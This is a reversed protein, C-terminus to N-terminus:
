RMTPRSAKRDTEGVEARQTSPPPRRAHGAKGYNVSLSSETGFFQRSGQGRSRGQMRVQVEKILMFFNSVGAESRQRGSTPATEARCTGDNGTWRQCLSLDLIIENGFLLTEARGCDRQVQQRDTQLSPYTCHSTVVNYLQRKPDRQRSLWRRLLAVPLYWFIQSQLLSGVNMVLPKQPM